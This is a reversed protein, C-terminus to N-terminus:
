SLWDTEYASIGSLVQWLSRCSARSNKGARRELDTLRSDSQSLWGPGRHKYYRGVYAEGQDAHDTIRAVPGRSHPPAGILQLRCITTQADGVPLQATRGASPCAAVIM